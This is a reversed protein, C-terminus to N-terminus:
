HSYISFSSKAGVEIFARYISVDMECFEYPNQYGYLAINDINVKELKLLNIVQAQITVLTTPTGTGCIAPTNPAL